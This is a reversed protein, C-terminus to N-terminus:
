SLTHVFLGSRLKPEFWTSKPPMVQGADAVAMVDEISTPYLVFAASMGTRVRRELEQSGRIGGVFDIRTDSKPDNIGLIPSLLKRQLIEVDLRSIPDRAEYSEAKATLRYWKGELFMGFRHVEEPHYPGHECVQVDFASNLRQLFAQASLGHLDSVVRNYSMIHIQDDPVLVSLFYNFPENGHYGPHQERRMQGVKAASAIRHHGDAVYLADIRAFAATLTKILSGDDIRWVTHRIGDDSQFDYIPTHTEIWNNVLQDIQEQSRYTLFILGTNANCVDTHKIRDQEKDPRTHEHIKIRGKLYDDIANCVVLGRQKRDNMIEQYIYFVDTEEQRLKEDRILAYLNARAQEYVQPAHSDIGPPFDIEAKIVHLFSNPKDQAAERAEDSNIVDYPLSAIQAALEPIPRYAKLPKITLM